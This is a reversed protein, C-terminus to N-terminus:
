SSVHSNLNEVDYANWEDSLLVDTQFLSSTQLIRSTDLPETHAANPIVIKCSANNPEIYCWLSSMSCSSPGYCDKYIGRKTM